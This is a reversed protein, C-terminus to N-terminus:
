MEARVEVQKMGNGGTKEMIKDCKWRNRWSKGIDFHEFARKGRAKEKLSQAESGDQVHPGGAFQSLFPM